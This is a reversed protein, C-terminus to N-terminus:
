HWRKVYGRETGDPVFGLRELYERSRPIEPDYQARITGGVSKVAAMARFIERHLKAPYAGRRALAAWWDGADAYFVVLAALSGDDHRAAFGCFADEAPVLPSQWEVFHDMTLDEFIM